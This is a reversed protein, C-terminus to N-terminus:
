GCKTVEPKSGPPVSLSNAKRLISNFLFAFNHGAAHPVLAKIISIAAAVAASNPITYQM